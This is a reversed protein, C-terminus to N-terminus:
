ASNRGYRIIGLLILGIPVWLFAYFLYYGLAWLPYIYEGIDTALLICPSPGQASVKCGNVNAILLVIFGLLCLGAPWLVILIATLSSLDKHEKKL